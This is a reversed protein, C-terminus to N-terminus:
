SLYKQEVDIDIDIDIDWTSRNELRAVCVEFRYLAGVLLGLPGRIYRVYVSTIIHCIRFEESVM